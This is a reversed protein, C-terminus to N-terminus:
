GALKIEDPKASFPHPTHVQHHKQNELKEFYNISLLYATCLPVTIFLLGWHGFTETLYVIGFSTIIYTM